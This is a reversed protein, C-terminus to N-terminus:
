STSIDLRGSTCGARIVTGFTSSEMNNRCIAVRKSPVRLSSRSRTTEAMSTSNSRCETPLSSTTPELTRHPGEPDHVYILPCMSWSRTVTRHHTLLHVSSSANNRVLTVTAFTDLGDFVLDANPANLDDDSATFTTKFVWEKEGVGTLTATV